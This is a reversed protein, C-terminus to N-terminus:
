DLTKDPNLIKMMQEHLLANSALMEPIWISFSSGDYKTIKGGAEELILSAAATDWPKLGLEWFGDFRGCAMYCIDISAAGARRVGQANLVFQNFPNLTAEPNQRIDYPFGTSLLANNLDNVSSVKIAEGNLFAGEGKVSTFMEDQNPDYVVGMVPEKKYALGISVAYIPFRHAYNTTGDLPDIVWLYDSNKISVQLNGSCKAADEESLISYDPFHKSLTDVILKEAALDGETVLDVTGKHSVSFNGKSLQKLLAGAERAVNKAINLEKDFMAASCLASRAM